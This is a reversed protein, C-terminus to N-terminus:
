LPLNGEVRTVRDKGQIVQSAAGFFNMIGIRGLFMLSIIILIAITGMSQLAGTSFGTTTFGSVVDFWIYLLNIYPHLAYIIGTCILAITIFTFVLFYSKIILQDPMKYNYYEVKNSGQFMSQIHKYIVYVSVVKVGGCASSPSGGIIMFLTFLMLTIPYLKTFDSIVSLGVSKTSVSMYLSYQIKQFWNYSNLANHNEIGLIFLAFVIITIINFKIVIRSFTSIRYNKGDLKNKIKMFVDIAVPYGIFSFIMLIILIWQLAYDHIYPNTNYFGSGSVASASMFWANMFKDLSNMHTYGLKFFIIIAGVIEISWFMILIRKTITVIGEMDLKNIDLTSLMRNNFGIKKGLLLLILTNTVIIGVGGVNFNIILLLWGFYNFTETVDVTSLGSTTIASVSTFLGNVFGVSQHDLTFLPLAFAIGMIFSFVVYSLVLTLLPKYKGNETKLMGLM